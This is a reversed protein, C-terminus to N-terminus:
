PVQAVVIERAHMSVGATGPNQKNKIKGCDVGRFMWIIKRKLFFLFCAHVCSSYNSAVSICMHNELIPSGM